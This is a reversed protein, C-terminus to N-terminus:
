HCTGDDCYRDPYHVLQQQLPTSRGGFSALYPGACSLRASSVTVNVGSCSWDRQAVGLAVGLGDGAPEGMLFRPGLQVPESKAAFPRIPVKSTGSGPSAVMTKSMLEAWFLALCFAGTASVAAAVGAEGSRAATGTLLVM